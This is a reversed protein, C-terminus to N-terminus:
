QGYVSDTAVHSQSPPPQGGVRTRQPYSVSTAIASCAWPQKLSSMKKINMVMMEKM